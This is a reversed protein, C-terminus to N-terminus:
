ESSWSSPWRRSWRSLRQLADPDAWAIQVTETGRDRTVLRGRGPPGPMPKLNGILPGEDPSGSLLLGPMALDRLSQLVPEYLARSAGGSRRAVAVHLGTDRAQAMLPQLAAVPSSQQTAVLDYDDVVVFVEAGTWWSRNRLQEPTVDEGPIRNELYTALDRLVPTAQTASTLYNLLYDDPVEGLMSRRYDVVVLQAEKPTRTRMIEQVYARLVSSKGSQGDGFVLLHPETDPDLGVPALEKENIGILLRREPIAGRKAQDRVAELEIIEPLLRLKPGTPGQWADVVRGILDDVGDGVTDADPDGDIRPLAGLFHLKSQVLGRGPRGTPVLQAIKRDIESDMADGLRLELRTGFVDRMAARFDAWRSAGTVIHLGFTLGRASLQQVELEIDDFDARLTSWGDIVLFVDGYGDDARGQSRRSRYTEISDIGQERFYAERRDVVGQVEAMIRRVVDPESRTGVGAVHPLRSLPAFTGGGFDLVFFQSEQPTTTLSISTVITRLLTSKGSRPGGVVAVHGSAGSLNVSLTDRRQQRPRDVTGLPVVLGGLGRWQRSVLGLKPDVTLDGMLDDLTDPVDLPPLWVQHAAPGHGVMRDVAVDLLTTQDGQQPTVPQPEPDPEAPALSPVESITFPLIGQVHGGEDRRVRVKGSPPGSM